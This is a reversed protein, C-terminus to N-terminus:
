KIGGLEKLALECQEKSPANGHWEPRNEMFSIGKGKITKAIIVTPMEKTNKAIKYANILEEFNHGDVTIVNWGFAEFKKDIPTPNMVNTIEGDIQLGNFDIIALLNDLKYHTATMAAEWVQGEELEGDGLLTYVRYKDNHIKYSLAMGVATSIGQGLSGTSMDISPIYNMNPHGQLKSNIKRFSGLKNKDIFGKESLVSYLLPSAHGKSLVFKDRSKDYINEKNINMENFYLSTLIEVASLSGGPHGSSAETIIKIINKRIETAKKNLFDIDM